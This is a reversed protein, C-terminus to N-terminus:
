AADGGYDIGLAIDIDVDLGCGLVVELDIVDDLGMQVSIENGAMTLKGLTGSCPDIDAGSRPPSM